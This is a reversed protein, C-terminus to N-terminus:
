AKKSTKFRFYLIINDREFSFNVPYFKFYASFVTDRSLNFEKCVGNISPLKDGLSLSGNDLADVVSSVIQKYKPIEIADNIEIFM